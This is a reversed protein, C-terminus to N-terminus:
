GGSRFAGKIWRKGRQFLGDFNRRDRDLGTPKFLRHSELFKGVCLATTEQNKSIERFFFPSVRTAQFARKSSAPQSSVPLNKKRKKKKNKQKKTQKLAKQKPLLNFKPQNQFNSSTMAQHTQCTTTAYILRLVCLSDDLRM